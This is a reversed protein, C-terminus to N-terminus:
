RGRDNRGHRRAATIIAMALFLSGLVSLVTTIVASNEGVYAQLAAQGVASILFAVAIIVLVAPDRLRARVTTFVRDATSRGHTPDPRGHMQSGKTAAGGYRVRNENPDDAGYSRHAM